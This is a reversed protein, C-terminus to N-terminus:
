ATGIRSGSGGRLLRSAGAARSAGTWGSRSSRGRPGPLDKLNIRVNLVAGEAGGRALWARRRRRQGREPKRVHRGGARDGARSRLGGGHPASGADRKAGSRHDISEPTGGGGAHAAVAAVRRSVSRLRARGRWSISSSAAFRKRARRRRACGPRTSRTSRSGSRSGRWWPRWHRPWRERWPPCAEAGRRPRRPRSTRWFSRSRSSTAGIRRVLRNELIQDRSFNELRAPAACRRWRATPRPTESSTADAAGVGPASAHGGQRSRQGRCQRGHHRPERDPLLLVRLVLGPHALPSPRPFRKAALEEIEHALVRVGVFRIAARRPQRLARRLLHCEPTSRDDFRRSVRRRTGSWVASAQTRASSIASSTAVYPFGFAALSAPTAAHSARPPASPATSFTRM